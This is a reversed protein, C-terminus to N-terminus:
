WTGDISSPQCSARTRSILQMFACQMTPTLLV